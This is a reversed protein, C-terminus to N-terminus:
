ALMLKNSGKAKTQRINWDIELLVPAFKWFGNLDLGGQAFKQTLNAAEPCIRNTLDGFAPLNKLRLYDGSMLIESPITKSACHFPM